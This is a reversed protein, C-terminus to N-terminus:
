DAQTIMDPTIERILKIKLAEAYGEYDAIEMVFAGPGTIVKRRYYDYLGLEASSIVLANITVNM